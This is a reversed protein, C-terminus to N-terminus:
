KGARQLFPLLNKAQEGTVDSVNRTAPEKKSYLGKSTKIARNYM